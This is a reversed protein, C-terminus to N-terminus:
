TRGPPWTGIYDPVPVEPPLDASGQPDGFQHNIPVVGTWIPRGQDDLVRDEPDDDPPGNSIKLSWETLPLELLLTAAIEKPSGARADRSRGPQLGETILTFAAQQEAGDLVRCQGLIMASRYHMSSEFQSRALVLGDLITVTVCTPAGAALAKMLRSAASGHLLLRDGARAFAVPLVYPQHDTIVAVHAVLAADLLEYLQELEHRQKEPVRRVQTRNPAPRAAAM